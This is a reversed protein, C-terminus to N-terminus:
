LPGVPQSQPLACIRPTEERALLGFFFNPQFHSLSLILAVRVTSPEAAAFEKFLPPAPWPGSPPRATTQKDGASSLPYHFCRAVTGSLEGFHQSQRLRGQLEGEIPPQVGGA